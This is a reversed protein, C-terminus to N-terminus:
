SRRRHQADQGQGRRFLRLVIQHLQGREFPNKLHSGADGAAHPQKHRGKRAAHLLSQLNTLLQEARAHHMAHLKLRARAAHEHTIVLALNLGGDDFARDDLQQTQVRGDVSFLLAAHFVAQM